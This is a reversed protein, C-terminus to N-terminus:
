SGLETRGTDGSCRSTRLKLVVLRLAAVVRPMLEASFRLAGQPDVTMELRLRYHDEDGKATEEMAPKLNDFLFEGTKRWDGYEFIVHATRLTGPDGQCSSLTVLGPIESLLEVLEVIGKDVPVNVKAWGTEHRAAQSAQATM